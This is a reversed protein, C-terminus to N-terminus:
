GAVNSYYSVVETFDGVMLTHFVHIQLLDLVQSYDSKLPEYMDAMRPIYM